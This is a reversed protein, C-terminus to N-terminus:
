NINISGFLYYGKWHGSRAPKNPNPKPVPKINPNGAAPPPTHQQQQQQLNISNTNQLGDSQQPSLILQQNTTIPFSPNPSATSFSFVDPYPGIQKTFTPPASTSVSIIDMLETFMRPTSVQLNTADDKAASSTIANSTWAGKNSSSSSHWLNPAPVGVILDNPHITAPLGGGNVPTPYFKSEINKTSIVATNGNSITNDSFGPDTGSFIDIISTLINNDNADVSSSSSAAGIPIIM